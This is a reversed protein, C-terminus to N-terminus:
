RIDHQVFERSEKHDLILELRERDDIADRQARNLAALM